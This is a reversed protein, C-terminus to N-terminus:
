GELFESPSRWSFSFFFIFLIEEFIGHDGFNLFTYKLLIIKQFLRKM